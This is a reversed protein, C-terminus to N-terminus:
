LECEARPLGHVECRVLDQPLHKELQWNPGGVPHDEGLDHLAPLGVSAVTYLNKPTEIASLLDKTKALKSRGFDHVKGAQVQVPM